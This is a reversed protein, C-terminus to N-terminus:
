IINRQSAAKLHHTPKIAVFMGNRQVKTYVFSLPMVFAAKSPFIPLAEHNKFLVGFLNM